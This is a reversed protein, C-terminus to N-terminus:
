FAKISGSPHSYPASRAMKGRLIRVSLYLGFDAQWLTVIELVGDGNIDSVFLDRFGAEFPLLTVWEDGEVRFPNHVILTAPGGFEPIGVVFCVEERGDGDVDHQLCRLVRVKRVDHGWGRRQLERELAPRVLNVVETALSGEPDTM